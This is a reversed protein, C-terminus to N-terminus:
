QEKLLSAFAAMEEALATAARDEMARYRSLAQHGLETVEAGGGGSGGRAATVLPARFSDNMAEVLLWARRYSMGMRRAAKSISGEAAIAELLEAKGPGMAIASGLLIRLRPRPAERGTM